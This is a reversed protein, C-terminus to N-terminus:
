YLKYVVDGVCYHTGWYNPISDKKPELYTGTYIYDEGVWTIMSGKDPKMLPNVACSTLCFAAIALGIIVAWPLVAIIKSLQCKNLPKDKM